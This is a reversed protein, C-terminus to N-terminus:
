LAQAKTEFHVTDIYKAMEIFADPPDTALFTIGFSLRRTM